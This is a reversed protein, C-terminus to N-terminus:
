KTFLLIVIEWFSGLQGISVPQTTQGVTWFGYFVFFVLLYEKCKILQFLIIVKQHMKAKFFSVFSQHM